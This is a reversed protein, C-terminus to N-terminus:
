RKQEKLAEATQGVGAETAVAPLEVTVRTGRGLTSELRLTGGYSEVIRKSEYLGIGFGGSTGSQFPRFLTRLREPPVGPGEDVVDMRVHGEGTGLEVRVGTAGKGGAAGAEIAKRANLLLNLVVQQLQEPVALVPSFGEPPRVLEVGFDPGLSAVTGEVLEVIDVPQVQGLAPSRNSLRAILASMQQATRTVTKMASTQFEPDEGHKVANQAVLSLRATLNKFDHLYFAAFRNLADIEAAAQREDALGSHALLVGVHHAIARLLDRDDLDYGRGAPGPGLVLFAVLEGAGLVPVGLVAETKELFTDDKGPALVGKLEIPEVTEALAAVVPHDGALPPPPPEINTSRVQHFHDDAEFRTWVSIRPAGFTRALLNSLQDLIEDV